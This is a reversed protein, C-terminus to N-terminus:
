NKKLKKINLKNQLYIKLSAEQANESADDGTGLTFNDRTVDKWDTASTSGGNGKLQEYIRKGEENVSALRDNIAKTEEDHKELAAKAEEHAAEKADRVKKAEAEKAKADQLAKFAKVFKTEADRYEQTIIVEGKKENGTKTTDAAFAPTVAGLGLALALAGAALKNTKM